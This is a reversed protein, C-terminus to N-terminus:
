VGWGRIGGKMHRGRRRVLQALQQMLAACQEGRGSERSLRARKLVNGASRYLFPINAQAM